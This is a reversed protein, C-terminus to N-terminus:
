TLPQQLLELLKGESVAERDIHILQVLIRGLAQFIALCSGIEGHTALSFDLTGTGLLHLEHTGLVGKFIGEVYEQPLGIHVRDLRGALSEPYNRGQGHSIAVRILLEHTPQPTFIAGLGGYLIHPGRPLLIEVASCREGIKSDSTIRQSRQIVQSIEFSWVPLEDLWLRAKRLGWQLEMM